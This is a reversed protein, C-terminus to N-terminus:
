ICKVRSRTLISNEGKDLKEKKPEIIQPTTELFKNFDKKDKIISDKIYHKILKDDVYLSKFWERVNGYMFLGERNPINTLENTDCVVLSSSNTNQSFGIKTCLNSRLSPDLVTTDPRQIGIILFIGAKRFKRVMHRLMNYCNVKSRYDKELQSTPFYDAFEDLILYIYNMRKRNFVKNYEKISKCSKSNFISLRKKYIHMLHEFLQESEEIDKAYGKVQRCNKFIEFDCMDSLDSFYINIDRDSFNYISNTIALRIIETKGSGTQGSVLVHPFRTLDSKLHEFKLNLGCYFEYPKTIVPSFKTTDSLKEIIIDITATKLNDNQTIYTNYGLCTEILDNSAELKDFGFGNLSIIVSYGFKNKEIDIINYELNNKYFINDIEKKIKYLDRKVIREYLYMGAATITFEVIM